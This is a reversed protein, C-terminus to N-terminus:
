IQNTASTETNVQHTTASIIETFGPQQQEETQSRTKRIRSELSQTPQPATDPMSDVRPHTALGTEAQTETNRITPTTDFTGKKMEPSAQAEEFVGGSPQSSKKAQRLKESIKNYADQRKKQEEETPQEVNSAGAATDRESGVMPSHRNLINFNQSKVARIKKANKDSLAQQPPRKFLANKSQQKIVQSNAHAGQAMVVQRDQRGM